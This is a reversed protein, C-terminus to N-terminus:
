VSYKSYLYSEDELIFVKTDTKAVAYTDNKQSFLEAVGLRTVKNKDTYTSLAVVGETIIYQTKSSDNNDLIVEGAKYAKPILKRELRQKEETSLHTFAGCNEIVSVPASIAPTEEEKQLFVERQPTALIIDAQELHRWVRKWVQEMIKTRKSYNDIYFIIEFIQSSDGRGLFAIRSSPNDVLGETSLVADLLIKEVFEFRYVPVIELRIKQKVAKKSETYNKIIAKAVIINPINIISANFILITSRPTMEVVTGKIDNIEVWDGLKFVKSFSVGLGAIINSIDIKSSLAFLLAVVGSTAALGTVTVEFVFAMIGIIAIAYITISVFLRLVNPVEAGTKKKIPQWLFQEFASTIYYAPIIWWLIAITQSTSNMLSTITDLNSQGWDSYRLNFLTQSLAFETFVLIFFTIVLQLIWWYSAARGFVEENKGYLTFIFIGLSLALFILMAPIEIKDEGGPLQANMWSEIGRVSWFVPKISYQAIVQSFKDSTNTGLPNGLGVKHSRSIYSLNYNLTLSAEDIVDFQLEELFHKNEIAEQSFLGQNTNYYDTVYSLKYLNERYNRFKIYLNQKGLAYNLAEATQFFGKIHYRVYSEGNTTSESVIKAEMPALIPNLLPTEDAKEKKALIDKLRIPIVANLFEIDSVNQVGEKYRFWLFFDMKYTLKEMDIHSIENMSIGSSVINTPYLIEDEIKLIKKSEEKTLDGYSVMVPDIPATVLNQKEFNGMTLISGVAQLKDNFYDNETFKQIITQRALPIDDITDPLNDLLMVLSASTRMAQHSIHRRYKNMYDNRISTIRYNLHDGQISSATIIGDSFYGPYSVEEKFRFFGDAIETDDTMISVDISARKLAVLAPVAKARDGIVLLLNDSSNNDFSQILVDNDVSDLSFEQNVTGGLSQFTELFKETLQRNDITHSHLVTVIKKNLIKYAYHAMYIGYSKPSPLMEFVWPSDSIINGQTILLPIQAKDYINMVEVPIKYGFDGLVALVKENKAIENAIKKAKEPNNHEFYTEIELQKGKVGAFRNIREAYLKLAEVRSDKDTEKGDIVIAVSVVDVKATLTFFASFAIVVLVLQISLVKWYKKVFQGIYM